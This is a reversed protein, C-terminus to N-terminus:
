RKLQLIPLIGEEKSIRKKIPINKKTTFSNIKNKSKSLNTQDTPPYYFATTFTEVNDNLRVYRHTEFVPYRYGKVYWKYITNENTYKVYESGNYNLQEIIQVYKIRLANEYTGSPLTITGYGDAVIERYGETEIKETGSYLGNTKYDYKYNDSYYTPYKDSIMRPNYQLKVVPNEHGTAKLLNDEIQFYYMTNHETVVFLSNVPTDYMNFNDYGMIYTDNALPAATYEVIYNNNVISFNNFNWSVNAGSNGPDKYEIQKKILKDGVRPSNDRRNIQYPNSEDVELFEEQHLIIKLSERGASITITGIRNSTSKNEKINITIAESNVGEKKNVSYWDGDTTVSWKTNSMIMQIETNSENYYDFRLTTSSSWSTLDMNSFLLQINLAEQTIKLKETKSGAKVTIFADRESDIYNKETNVTISKSENGTPNEITCWKPIDTIEWSENTIIEFTLGETTPEAPFVLESESLALTVNKAVQKVLLEKSKDKAVIKLTASREEEKPNASAKVSIIKDGNGNTVDLTVWDPIQSIVWSDNSEIDFNKIEENATFLISTESIELTIEKEKDDDSCGALFLLALFNILLFTKKM